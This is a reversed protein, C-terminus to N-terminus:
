YIRIKIRLMLYWLKLNSYGKVIFMIEIPLGLLLAFYIMLIGWPTFPVQILFIIFASLIASGKKRILYGVM